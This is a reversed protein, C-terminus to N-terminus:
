NVVVGTSTLGSTPQSALPTCTYSTTIPAVTTATGTGCTFSAGGNFNLSVSSQTTDNALVLAVSVVNAGASDLNYMLSNVTAGSVTTTSYGTLPKTSRSAFTNGATFATSGAVALGAFAAATILKTPKRQGGGSGTAKRGWSVSPKANRHSQLNSIARPKEASWPSSWPSIPEGIASIV